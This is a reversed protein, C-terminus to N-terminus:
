SFHRISQDLSSRKRVLYRKSNFQSKLKSLEFSQGRFHLLFYNEQIKLIAKEPGDVKVPSSVASNKTCPLRGTTSERQSANFSNSPTRGAFAPSNM